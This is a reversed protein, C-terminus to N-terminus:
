GRKEEGPLGNSRAQPPAPPSPPKRSALAKGLLSMGAFHRKAASAAIERAERIKDAIGAEGMASAGEGLIFQEFAPAIDPAGSDTKAVSGDAELRASTLVISVGNTQDIRLLRERLVTGDALQLKRDTKPEGPMEAETFPARSRPPLPDAPNTSPM